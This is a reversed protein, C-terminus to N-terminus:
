QLDKTEDEDDYDDDEEDECSSIDVGSLFVIKWEGNVKELFRIGIAQPMSFYMLLPQIPSRIPIVGPPPQHEGEDSRCFALLFTLRM